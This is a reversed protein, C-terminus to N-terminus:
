RLLAFLDAYVSGVVLPAHVAGPGQVVERVVVRVVILHVDSRGRATPTNVTLAAVSAVCVPRRRHVFM